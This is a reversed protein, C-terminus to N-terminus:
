SDQWPVSVVGYPHSQNPKSTSSCHNSKHAPEMDWVVWLLEDGMVIKGTNYLSVWLLLVNVIIQPANLLLAVPFSQDGNHVPSGLSIEFDRKKSLNKMILLLFSIRILVEVQSTSEIYNYEKIFM